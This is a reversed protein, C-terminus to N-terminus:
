RRGAAVAAALIDPLDHVSLWQGGDATQLMTQPRINLNIAPPPAPPASFSPGGGSRGPALGPSQLAAILAGGRAGRNWADIAQPMRSGPIAYEGQPDRGEGIEVLTSRDFWGGKALRPITVQHLRWPIAPIGLKGSLSNTANILENVRSSFGNIANECLQLIYNLSDKIWQGASSFGKAVAEGIGPAREEIGKIFDDWYSRYFEQWTKIEYEFDNRLTELLGKQKIQNVKEERTRADTLWRFFDEIPERWTIAAAALGAVVIATLGVPGTLVAAIAPLATGTIWATLATIAGAIPGAPGLLAAWGAITGGINLGAIATGIGAIIGPFGKIAAAIPGAPGLLAAWGAITAAFKTGAIATGIGALVGPLGRLKGLLIGAADGAGKLINLFKTWPGTPPPPQPKLAGTFRDYVPGMPATPAKPPAGPPKGGRMRNFLGDGIKLAGVIAGVGIAVETLVRLWQPLENFVDGLKSGVDILKELAPNLDKGVTRALDQSAANWKQLATPPPLDGLIKKMEVSAARIVVDPTFLGESAMKKVDGLTAITRAKTDKIIEQNAEKIIEVEQDLQDRIIQIQKEASRRVADEELEQRRKIATEGGNLRDALAKEEAQRQNRLARERTIQQDELRDELGQRERDFRDRVAREQEDWWDDDSRKIERQVDERIGKLENQHDRWRERDERERSLAKLSEREANDISEFITKRADRDARRRIRDEDDYRDQLLQLEIDNKDRLMKIEKEYRDGIKLLKRDTETQVQEERIRASNQILRIYQKEGKEVEKIIQETRQKTIQIIGKDKAIGNYANVLAQAFPPVRELMTVLEQGNLRGQGIAQSMQRFFETTDQTTLGIIRSAEGMSDMMRKIEPLQVGLQRLKGVLGATAEDAENQSYTFKKAFETSLKMIEGTENFEKGLSEIRYALRISEDGATIATRGFGEVGNVLRSLQIGAAVKAVDAIASGLRQVQPVSSQAAPGVGKLRRQLNEVDTTGNVKAVIRLIAEVPSAM